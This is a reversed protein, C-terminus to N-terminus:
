KFNELIFDFANQYLINDVFQKTTIGALYKDKKPDDDIIDILHKSLVDFDLATPCNDIPNIYGDFDSGIALLKSFRRKDQVKNVSADLVADLVGKINNWLYHTHTIGPVLEKPVGLVRQDLNMGILGETNYILRIEEDCLNINWANFKNGDKDAIWDDSEKDWDDLLQKITERGSYACHSAIVPIRDGKNLCPIVLTEYFQKRSLINMHKVDILIRRGFEEPKYENNENLSLLLRIVKWGKTTFGEKLGEDQDIVIAGIDPISHAHGCLHNYFHHAMTIFFVPKDWEKVEIINEKIKEFEQDSKFVNAGEISLVFAVNDDDIIRKVDEGNKAIVYTGTANLERQHKKIIKTTNVFLRKLLPIYIKSSEEAENRKQLFEKEEKFEKFYDYEAGQFFNIKKVPLKMYVAQAFDRLALRDGKPDSLYRIFPRAINSVTVSVADNFKSKGLIKHLDFIKNKIVPHNGGVWGKELPYLSVVALRFNGNVLKVPHSQSYAAARKARRIANFNPLIIYWPHYKNLSEDKRPNRLWNYARMHPHCHIDAYKKM